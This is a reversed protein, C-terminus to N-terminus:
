STIPIITMITGMDRDDAFVVPHDPHKDFEWGFLGGYLATAAPLDNTVLDAHVFKGPIYGYQAQALVLSASQLCLALMLFRFRQM